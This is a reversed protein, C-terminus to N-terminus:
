LMVSSGIGQAAFHGGQFKQAMKDQRQIKPGKISDTKDM